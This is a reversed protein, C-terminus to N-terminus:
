DVHWAARLMHQGVIGEEVAGEGAPDLREVCEEAGEYGPAYM